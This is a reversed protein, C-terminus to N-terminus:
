NCSSCCLTCQVTSYFFTRVQLLLVVYVASFMASFTKVQLFSLFVHLENNFIDGSAAVIMKLVNLFSVGSM